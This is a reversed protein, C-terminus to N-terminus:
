PGREQIIVRPKCSFGCKKALRNVATDPDSDCVRVYHQEDFDWWRAEWRGGSMEVHIVQQNM